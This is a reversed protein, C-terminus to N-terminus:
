PESAWPRREYGLLMPSPRMTLQRICSQRTERNMADAPTRVSSFDGKWLDGNVRVLRGTYVNRYQVSPDITQVVFTESPPNLITFEKVDGPDFGVQSVNVDFTLAPRPAGGCVACALALMSCCTMKRM